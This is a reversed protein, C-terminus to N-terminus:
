ATRDILKRVHAPLPHAAGQRRESV